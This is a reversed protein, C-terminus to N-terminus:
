ATNCIGGRARRGDRGGSHLRVDLGRCGQGPRQADLLLDGRLGREGDAVDTRVAVVLYEGFVQVLGGADDLGAVTM